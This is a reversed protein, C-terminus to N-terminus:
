QAPAALEESEIKERLRLRGLDAILEKLEPRDEIEADSLERLEPVQWPRKSM